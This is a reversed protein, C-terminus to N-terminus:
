RPGLGFPDNSSVSAGGRGPIPGWELIKSAGWLRFRMWWPQEKLKETKNQQRALKKAYQTALRSSRSQVRSLGGARRRSIRAM